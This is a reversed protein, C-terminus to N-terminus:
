KCHVAENGDRPNHRNSPKTAHTSPCHVIPQPRAGLELRSDSDDHLHTNTSDKSWQFHGASTCVAQVQVSVSQLFDLDLDFFRCRTTSSGSSPPHTPISVNNRLHRTGLTCTATATTATPTLQPREANYEEGQITKNMTTVGKTTHEAARQHGDETHRHSATSTTTDGSTGGVGSVITVRGTSDSHCPEVDMGGTSAGAGTTTLGTTPCMKGEPVSGGWSGAVAVAVAVAVPAAVPM